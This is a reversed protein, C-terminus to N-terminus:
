IIVSNAKIECRDCKNIVKSHRSPIISVSTKNIGDNKSTLFIVFIGTIARIIRVNPAQSALIPRLIM